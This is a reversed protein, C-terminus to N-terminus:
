LVRIDDDDFVKPYAEQWKEALFEYRWEERDSEFYFFTYKPETINM